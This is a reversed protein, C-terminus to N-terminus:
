ILSSSPYSVLTKKFHVILVDMYFLTSDISRSDGETSLTARYFYHLFDVITRLKKWEQFSLIDDELEDEYETCYQEVASRLDLLVKLMEYWSNWRTRNDMPIMRGAYEKFIAIRKPSGRIHAVINHGKGLPGLLRFKARIMERDVLTEAEEDNDYLALEEM